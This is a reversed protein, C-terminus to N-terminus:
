DTLRKELTRTSEERLADLQHLFGETASAVGGGSGVNAPTAQIKTTTGGGLLKRIEQASEYKRMAISLSILTGATGVAALGRQEVSYAALRTNLNNILAWEARDSGVTTKELLNKMDAMVKEVGTPAPVPGKGSAVLLRDTDM